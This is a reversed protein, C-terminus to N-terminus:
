MIRVSVEGLGNFRVRIQQGAALPLPPVATGCIVVDGARLEEGRAAVTAAMSRLVAEPRGTLAYPDAGHHDGVDLTLGDPSRASFEGLVVARHYIGAAMIAEVDDTPGHLDILEIAPAIAEIAQDEGLRVALEAEALPAKWGSIDQSGGDPLLTARTIPAALPGDLGLKAMAQKTGFGAKWGLRQDV